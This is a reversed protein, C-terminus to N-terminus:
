HWMCAVAISEEETRICSAMRFTTFPTPPKSWASTLLNPPKRVDHLAAEHQVSQVQQHVGHLVPAM